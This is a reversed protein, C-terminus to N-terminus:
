LSVEERAIAGVPTFAMLFAVLILIAALAGREVWTKFKPGRDLDTFDEISWPLFSQLVVAMGFLIVISIFDAFVAGAITGLSNAVNDGVWGPVAGIGGLVLRVAGGLALVGDVIRGFELAILVLAGATWLLAPRPNREIRERLSEVEPVTSTSESTTENSIIESM